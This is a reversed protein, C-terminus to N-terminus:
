KKDALLLYAIAGVIGVALWRALLLPVDVSVGYRGESHPPFLLMAIVIVAVTILVRRQKSNM